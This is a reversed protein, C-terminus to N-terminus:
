SPSGNQMQESIPEDLAERRLKKGLSFVKSLVQGSEKSCKDVKTDSFFSHVLATRFAGAGNYFPAPARIVASSLSMMLRVECFAVTKGFCHM